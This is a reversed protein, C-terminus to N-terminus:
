AETPSEQPERISTPAVPAVAAVAPLTPAPVPPKALALFADARNNWGNLWKTQSPINRALTVFYAKQFDVMWHILVAPDVANEAALTMPGCQGDVTVRAGLAIVAKQLLVVAQSTGELVAFSLMATAVAQSKISALFLPGSYVKEYTTDALAFSDDRDMTTFFGSEVLEPHWRETLGWRTLGGRDGPSDTIVGNLQSDEQRLVFDVAQKVDAM